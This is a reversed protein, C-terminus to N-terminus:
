GLVIKEREQQPQQQQQKKMIKKTMNKKNYKTLLRITTHKAVPVLYYRITTCYLLVTVCYLKYLCCLVTNGFFITRIRCRKLGSSGEKLINSIYLCIKWLTLAYSMMKLISSCKQFINCIGWVASILVTSTPHIYPTYITSTCHKYLAQITCTPHM